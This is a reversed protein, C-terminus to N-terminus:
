EGCFPNECTKGTKTFVKCDNNDCSYLEDFIHNLELKDLATLLVRKIYLMDEKNDRYYVESLDYLCEDHNREFLSVLSHAIDKAEDDGYHYRGALRILMNGLETGRTGTSLWQPFFYKDEESVGWDVCVSDTLQQM